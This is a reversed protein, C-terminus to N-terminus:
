CRVRGSPPLRTWFSYVSAAVSLDLRKTWIAYWAAKSRISVHLLADHSTRPMWILQFEAKSLCGTRSRCRYPTYIPHVVRPRWQLRAVGVIDSHDSM